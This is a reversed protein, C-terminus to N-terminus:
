RAVRTVPSIYGYLADVLANSVLISVAVLLVVAEVIPFDQNQVATVTLNGIGPLGFVAEVFVTGTILRPVQLGVVTILPIVANRGVHKFLVTRRPVGKATATRVYDSRLETAVSSRLTRVQQAMLGLSLTVWPLIMHKTWTGLGASLPEYGAPPLLRIYVGFILSLWLGALLPPIAVGCLAALRTARDIISGPRSGAVFGGMLAFAIAIILAGSCVALTTPLQQGLQTRVPLGGAGYSIGLNGHLVRWLWEFYQTIVPKDFGYQHSIAAIQARNANQGAIVAAPNGIRNLLVFTVLTVAILTAVGIAIRSAVAAM